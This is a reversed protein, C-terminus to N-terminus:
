EHSQELLEEIEKADEALQPLLDIITRGDNRPVLPEELVYCFVDYLQNMLPTNERGTKLCLDHCLKIAKFDERLKSESLM